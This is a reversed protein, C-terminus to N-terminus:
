RYAARAQAMDLHGQVVKELADHRLSRMGETVAASFIGAPRARETILLREVLVRSRSRLLEPDEWELVALTAEDLLHLKHMVQRLSLIPVQRQLEMALQLQALTHASRREPHEALGM